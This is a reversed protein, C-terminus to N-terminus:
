GNFSSKPFQAVIEYPRIESAILNDLNKTHEDISKKFKQAITKHISYELNIHPPYENVQRVTSGLGLFEQTKIDNFPTNQM